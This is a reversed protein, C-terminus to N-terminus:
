LPKTGSLILTTAIRHEYRKAGSRYEEIARDYRKNIMSIMLEYEENSLADPAMTHAKQASCLESIRDENIQAEAVSPDTNTFDPAYKVNAVADISVDAFGVKAMCEAYKAPDNEYRKFDSNENKAAEQWLRDFLQKEECGEDPIWEEPKACMNFICLILMRGGPKLVRYQESVFAELPCFNIVTHSLSVDFLDSGYPLQTADGVKFSCNLGLRDSAENAYEIHGIDLDVGHVDCDPLHKKIMHSLLGGACGVELITQANKLGMADIWRYMNSDTFKLARSKYLEDTTQVYTSWYRSM